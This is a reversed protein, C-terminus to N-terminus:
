GKQELVRICIINYRAEPVYRIVELARVTEDRKTVKVTGTGIVECTSYGGDDEYDREGKYGILQVVRKPFM